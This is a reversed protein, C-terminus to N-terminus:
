NVPHGMEWHLGFPDAVRGLRWGHDEGVPFIQSAGAKLAQEFFADPDSVTLVMRITEGGVPSPNTNGSGEPGGSVWFEARDVSLKVILGDPTDLRYREEAGFAAQYFEAAKQGNPVSLWPAISTKISSKQIPKNM